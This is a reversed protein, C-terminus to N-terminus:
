VKENDLAVVNGGEEVTDAVLQKKEELKLEQKETTVDSKPDEEQDLETHESAVEEFVSHRYHYLEKELEAIKSDRESIEHAYDKKEKKIACIANHGISIRNELYSIKRINKEYEPLKKVLNNKSELFQYLIKCDKGAELAKVAEKLETIEKERRGIKEKMATYIEYYLPDLLQDREAPNTGGRSYYADSREKLIDKLEKDKQLVQLRALVLRDKWTRVMENAENLQDTLSVLKEVLTAADASELEERNQKIFKRPAVATDPNENARKM